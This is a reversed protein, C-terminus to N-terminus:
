RAGLQRELSRVQQRLAQIQELLDMAVAVGQWDLDLERRLRVAQHLTPVAAVQFQWREATVTQPMVLGLEVLEIVLTQQLGCRECLDNLSLWVDEEVLQQEDIVVTPIETNM